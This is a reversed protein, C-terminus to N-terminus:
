IQIEEKKRQRWQRKYELIREKNEQRYQKEHENNKERWLKMREIIQEKNQERYQKAQELLHEKNDEHYEKSTRGAICKNVCNDKHERILQGERKCLQDKKFCPFDELLEIYADSYQIIEASTCVNKGQKYSAKHASLRKALTQTTSGIYYKDTQFSRITYIKGNAYDM